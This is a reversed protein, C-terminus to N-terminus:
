VQAVDMSLAAGEGVGEKMELDNEDEEGGENSDHV